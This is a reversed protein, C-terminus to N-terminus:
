NNARNRWTRPWAALPFASPAATGAASLIGLPGATFPKLASAWSQRRREATHWIDEVMPQPPTSLRMIATARVLELESMLQPLQDRSINDLSDLVSQLEARMTNNPRRM